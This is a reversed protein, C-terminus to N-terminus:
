YKCVISLAYKRPQREVEEVGIERGRRDEGAKEEGNEEKVPSTTSACCDAMHTRSGMPQTWTDQDICMIEGGAEGSVVFQLPM